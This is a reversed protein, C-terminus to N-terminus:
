DMSSVRFNESNSIMLRGQVDVVSGKEKSFRRQCKKIRVKEGGIICRRACLDHTLQCMAVTYVRMFRTGHIVTEEKHSREETLCM